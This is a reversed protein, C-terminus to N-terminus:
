ENRNGSSDFTLVMNSVKKYLSPFGLDGIDKIGVLRQNNNLILNKKSVRAKRVDLILTFHTFVHKIQGCQEWNKINEITLDRNFSEGTYNDWNSGPFAMMGGLMRETSRKEVLVEGSTTQLWYVVGTRTPKKVKEAKLPYNEQTGSKRATCYASVPCLGCSPSKPTCIMAGLDMLAQPMDAARKGIDEYLHKALEKIAKKAQPLPEELASLRAVIREVNGDVVTAQKNYAISTIAAASYPGIGPLKILEEETDPFVGGYEATIARACKYLNRARAYYGLGAWEKLVHDEPASALHKVTPWLATFKDFYSKVAPVTTQQLMVESM